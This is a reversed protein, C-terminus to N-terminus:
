NSNSDLLVLTIYISISACMTVFDLQLFIKIIGSGPKPMPTGLLVPVSVYNSYAGLYSYLPCFSIITAVCGDKSMKIVIINHNSLIM